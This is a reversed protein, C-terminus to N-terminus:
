VEVKGRVILSSAAFVILWIAPLLLKEELRHQFSVNGHASWCNKLCEVIKAKLLLRIGSFISKM